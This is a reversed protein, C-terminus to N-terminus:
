GTNAIDLSCQWPKWNWFLKEERVCAKPHKNCPAWILHGEVKLCNGLYCACYLKQLLPGSREYEYLCSTWCREFMLVACKGETGMIHTDSVYNRVESSLPASFTLYSWWNHHYSSQQINIFGFVRLTLPVKWSVYGLWRPRYQVRVVVIMNLLWWAQAQLERTEPFGGYPLCRFVRDRNMDSTSFSSKQNGRDM